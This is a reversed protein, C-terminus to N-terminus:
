RLAQLSTISHLEGELLTADGEAVVVDDALLRVRYDGPRAQLVFQLPRGAEARGDIPEMRRVVPQGASDDVELRLARQGLFQARVAAVAPSEDLGSVQIGHFMGPELDIHLEVTTGELVDVSRRATAIGKGDISAFYRGPDLADSLWGDEVQHLNGVWSGHEDGIVAWTEIDALDPPRSDVVHVRGGDGLELSGLDLVQKSTLVLGERVLGPREGPWVRLTWTGPPLLRSRYSGPAEGAVVSAPARESWFQSVAGSIPAGYRDVLSFRIKASAISGEPVVLSLPERDPHVDDVVLVPVTSRFEPEMLVLRHAGENCNTVAFVGAEDSVSEGRWGDYAGIRELQVVWGQLPAGFSDTITGTVELGRSLTLVLDGQESGPAVRLEREARGYQEHSAGLTVPGLLVGALMWRGEADTRTESYELDGYRVVPFERTVMVRAGPVAVPEDGGTLVRGSIRAARLLRVAVDRTGGDDLVLSSTQPSFGEALVTLEMNKGPPVALFSAVGDAGSRARLPPVVGTSGGVTETQAREFGYRGGLVVEADPVPAEVGSTVTVHVTGSERVLQLEVDVRDAETEGLHVVDSPGWSDPAFAGVVHGGSVGRISWRGAEDSRTVVQGESVTGYGSLWIDAGAFPVGNPDLVVGHVWPGSPLTIEVNATGGEPVEASATGGRDGYATVKGTPLRHIRATGDFDTTAQRPRRRTDTWAMVTVGVEAAPLGDDGWRVHVLLTGGTAVPPTMEGPQELWAAEETGAAALPMVDVQSPEPGQPLAMPLRAADSGPDVLHAGGGAPDQGDQMLVQLLVLLVLGLAVGALVPISVRGTSAPSCPLRDDSTTTM